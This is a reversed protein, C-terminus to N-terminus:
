FTHGRPGPMTSSNHCAGASVLGLKDTKPPYNIFFQPLNWHMFMNFTYVTTEQSAVNCINNCYTAGRARPESEVSDEIDWFSNRGHAFITVLRWFLRWNPVFKPFRKPFFMFFCWQENTCRKPISHLVRYALIHWDARFKHSTECPKVAVCRASWPESITWWLCVWIAGQCRFRTATHWFQPGPWESIWEEALVNMLADAFRLLQARKWDTVRWYILM